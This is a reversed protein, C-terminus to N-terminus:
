QAVVNVRGHFWPNIAASNYQYSKKDPWIVTDVGYATGKHIVKGAALLPERCKVELYGLRCLLLTRISSPLRHPDDRKELDNHHAYEIQFIRTAIGIALNSKYPPIATRSHRPRPGNRYALDPAVGSIRRGNRSVLHPAVVSYVGYGTALDVTKYCKPPVSYHLASYVYTVRPLPDLIQSHWSKVKFLANSM